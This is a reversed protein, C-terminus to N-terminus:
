VMVSEPQPIGTHSATAAGSSYGNLRLHRRPAPGTRRGGECYRRGEIRVPRLERARRPRESEARLRRGRCIRAGSGRHRDDPEVRRPHSATRMAPRTSARAPLYICAKDHGRSLASSNAYPPQSDIRKWLQGRKRTCNQGRRASTSCNDVPRTACAVCVRGTPLQPALRTASVAHTRSAVRTSQRTPVAVVRCAAASAEARM